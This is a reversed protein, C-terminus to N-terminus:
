RCRRAVREGTAPQPGRQHRVQQDLRAADDVRHDGAPVAAALAADALIEPLEAGIDFAIGRADVPAARGPVVVGIHAVALPLCSMGDPEPGVGGGGHEVLRRSGANGLFRARQHQREGHRLKQRAAALADSPRAEGVREGGAVAGFADRCLEAM